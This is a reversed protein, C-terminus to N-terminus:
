REEAVIEKEAVDLASGGASDSATVSFAANAVDVASLTWVFSKVNVWKKYTEIKSKANKCNWAVLRFTILANQTIEFCMDCKSLRSHSKISTIM